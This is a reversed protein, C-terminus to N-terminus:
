SVDWPFKIYTCQPMNRAWFYDYVFTECFQIGHFVFCIVLKPLFDKSCALLGGVYELSPASFLINVIVQQYLVSYIGQQLARDVHIIHPPHVSSRIHLKYQIALPLLLLRIFIPVIRGEKQGNGNIGVVLQQQEEQKGSFIFPEPRNAPTLPRCLVYERNSSQSGTEEVIRCLLPPPILAPPQLLFFNCM